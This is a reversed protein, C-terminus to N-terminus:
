RRLCIGRRLRRQNRGAGPEGASGRAETAEVLVEVGARRFTEAIRRM